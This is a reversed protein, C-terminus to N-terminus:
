NLLALIGALAGVAIPPWRGAALCFLMLGVADYMIEFQPLFFYLPLVISMVAAWVGPALRNFFLVSVYPLLAAQLGHMLITCASTMLAFMASYGFVRILLALFMPYLP